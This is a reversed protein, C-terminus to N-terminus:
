GGLHGPLCGRWISEGLTLDAKDPGKDLTTILSLGGYFRPSWFLTCSLAAPGHHLTDTGFDSFMKLIM